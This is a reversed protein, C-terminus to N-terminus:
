WETMHHPIHLVKLKLFHLSASVWIAKLVEREISRSKLSFCFQEGKKSMGTLTTFCSSYYLFM